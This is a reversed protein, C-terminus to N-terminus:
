WEDDGYEEGMRRRQYRRWATDDEAVDWGHRDIYGAVQQRVRAEELLEALLGSRTTGRREAERDAFAVLEDPLSIGVKMGFVYWPIVGNM